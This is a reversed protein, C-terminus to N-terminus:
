DIRKVGKLLLWVTFSFEGLVGSVIVFSELLEKYHLYNNLTIQATSDVIYGIGSLLILLGLVRPFLESKYLLKSLLILHFGFVILGFNWIINFDIFPQMSLMLTLDQVNNVLSIDILSKLALFFIGANIIRLISSTLALNKNIDKLLLYLPWSLLLDIVVMIVFSLVGYNYTEFNNTINEFTNIADGSVVMNELVYFNGFFGTIFIILYGLGTLRAITKINKM